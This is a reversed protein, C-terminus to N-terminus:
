VFQSLFKLGARFGGEVTFARDEHEISLVGDYGIDRLAGVYEGWAVRGYGPISYRWWSADLVGVRRRVDEYVTTDKAHTHFIRDGFEYVAAVYDIGQHYLHSPDFNLGFNPAPLVEFIRRFHDLHQLNTRHWNELAIRIGKEEALGLLPEFAGRLEGEITAMKDKGAVPFGALTCVTGVGMGAAMEICQRLAAQNRECVDAGEGVLGSYFALSSISLGLGEALRGIETVRKATVTLPNFHGGDVSGHIEVAGFGAEAAFSFVEELSGDKFPETLLGVYM